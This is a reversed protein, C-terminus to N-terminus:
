GYIEIKINEKSVKLEQLEKLIGKVFDNPGVVYFISNINYKKLIQKTIRKNYCKWNKDNTVTQFYNIKKDKSLKELEKRYIIDKETKCSYILSLKNRLKNHVIFRLISHLTSIGSGACILVVEQKVTKDFYLHGYPGNIELNDNLKMKNLNSTFKGTDYIKVTLSIEKSKEGPSSVSFPKSFEFSPIKVKVFQGSKFKLENELELVFTKVEPTEQIISKIIAM